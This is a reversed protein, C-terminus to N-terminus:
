KVESTLNVDYTQLKFSANIAGKDIKLAIPFHIQVISEYRNLNELFSYLEAPSKSPTTANFEYSLCPTKTNNSDCEKNKSLSTTTFFQKSFTAMKEQSFPQNFAKIIPMNEQKLQNLRTERALFLSKAYTHKELIRDYEAQIVHHEKMKPLVLFVVLALMMVIVIVLFFLLKIIDIKKLMQKLNSM